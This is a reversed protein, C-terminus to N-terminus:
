STRRRLEAELIERARNPNARGGTAKMIRGMLFGVAKGGKGSRYDEVSGPNGDLVKGVAAALAEEDSLQALGRAAIVEAAARGTAAMEALVEKGQNATVEGSKVRRHLDALAAPTLKLGHIGRPVDKARAMVEGMVWKAAAKADGIAAALGEFFEAVPAEETLVAADYAPLGHTSVFRARRARPSEPLARRAEEIWERPVALAPLDQRADEGRPEVGPM